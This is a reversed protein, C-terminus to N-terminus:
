DKRGLGHANSSASGAAHGRNWGIAVPLQAGFAGSGPLTEITFATRRAGTLGLHTRSSLRGCDTEPEDIARRLLPRMVEDGCSTAFEVGLRVWSADRLQEPHPTRCPRVGATKQTPFNHKGIKVPKSM